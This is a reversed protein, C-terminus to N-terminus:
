MVDKPWIEELVHFNLCDIHIAWTIALHEHCTKWGSISLCSALLGKISEDLKLNVVSSVFFHREYKVSRYRSDASCLYVAAFQSRLCQLVNTKLLIVCFAESGSFSHGQKFFHKQFALIQHHRRAEM